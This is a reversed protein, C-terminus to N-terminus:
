EFGPYYTLDRSELSTISCNTVSMYMNRRSNQAGMEPPFFRDNNLVVATDTERNHMPSWDALHACPRITRCDGDCVLSGARHHLTDTGIFVSRDWCQACSTSSLLSGVTHLPEREPDSLRTPPDKCRVTPYRDWHITIWSCGTPDTTARPSPLRGATSHTQISHPSTVTESILQRHSGTAGKGWESMWAMQTTGGLLYCRSSTLNRYPPPLGRRSQVDSCTRKIAGAPSIVSM